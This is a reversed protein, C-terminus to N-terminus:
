FSKNNSRNTENIILERIKINISTFALLLEKQKLSYTIRAIIEDKNPWSFSKGILFKVGCNLYLYKLLAEETKINSHKKLETFDILMFFGSVPVLKIKAYPIGEHIRKDNTYRSIIRKIKSYYKSNKISDIGTVLAIVLDRNIIYNKILKNFYIQYSIDRLKRNNYTGSLLKSQLLSSSDMIYFLNNRLARIIHSNAVVFGSRTNAMGYSKSLGYRSITYDFFNDITAMPKALNNRDYGIDRYILDDILFIDNKICINALEKLLKINKGSMVTGLPNHPNINLFAKVRPVYALDKYKKKLERNIRKIYEDLRKPNILYNETEELPITEVNINLREPMFAFLGYNPATMIITDYERFISKLILYFGETTSCTVIINENNLDQPYGNQKLYAIIENRSKEEGLVSPYEYLKQRLGKRLNKIAYPFPKSDIPNGSGLKIINKNDQEFTYLTTDYFYWAEEIEKVSPSYALRDQRHGIDPFGPKGTYQMNNEDLIEKIIAKM